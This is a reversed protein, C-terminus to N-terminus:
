RVTPRKWRVPPRGLWHRGGGEVPHTSVDSKYLEAREDISMKTVQSRERRLRPDLYALCFSECSLRDKVASGMLSGVFGALRDPGYRAKLRAFRCAHLVVACVWPDGLSVDELAITPARRWIYLPDCRNLAAAVSKISADNRRVAKQYASSYRWKRSPTGPASMEEGTGDRAQYSAVAEELVQDLYQTMELDTTIASADGVKSMYTRLVSPYPSAVTSVLDDFAQYNHPLCSTDSIRNQKNFIM